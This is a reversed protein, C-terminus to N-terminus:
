CLNSVIPGSLRHLQHQVLLQLIRPRIRPRQAAVLLNTSRAFPLLGILVELSNNAMQM